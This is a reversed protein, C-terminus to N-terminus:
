AAVQYAWAQGRAVPDFLRDPQLAPYIETNGKHYCILEADSVVPPWFELNVDNFLQPLVGLTYDYLQRVNEVKRYDRRDLPVHDMYQAVIDDCFARYEATFLIHAHWFPDIPLTVSHANAPDLMAVAYYQKLAYIGRSAYERTVPRGRDALDEMAKEMVLSYDEADIRKLRRHQDTTIQAIITESIPPYQM